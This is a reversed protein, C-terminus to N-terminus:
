KKTEKTEKAEKADDVDAREAPSLVFSLSFAVVSVILGYMFVNYAVRLYNYKKELVKGLSYADRIMTANYYDKDNMMERVGWDYDEVSLKTFIGFFLLNAKKESIDKRAINGTTVRPRTALVSFTITTVCVIFLMLTPILLHSAGDLRRALLSIVISLMLSNTQILLNAKDDVLKTFDIQNRSQTRYYTELNREIRQKGNDDKERTIADNEGAKASNTESAPMDGDDGDKLKGQKKEKRRLKAHEESQESQLKRQRRYCEALNEGRRDGWEVQAFRTHFPHSTFFDINTQIWLADTYTKGSVSQWEIRLLDSKEFYNKSGLHWLDADCLVEALLTKPQQPMVTALICDSVQAIREEAFGNQRLFQAALEAGRPEHGEYTETLGADHFWAALTVTELDIDSLKMGEGLDRAAEAIELTHNFNHYVYQAPLKEKFLEFIYDSAKRSLDRPKSM